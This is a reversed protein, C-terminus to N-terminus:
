AKEFFWWRPKRRVVRYNDALYKRIHVAAEKPDDTFLLYSTDEPSITGQAIMFALFERMPKYYELGMVVIPFDNIKRTQVLTLTEFFEDMTGFGGPMIVFAYSYKVLLVKRVFFYSIRVFKDLYPNETQEHPLVINCGVSYGGAEKAGRNAAEMVGPGGGTMVTLGLKAILSGVERAQEYYPHGAKFRASGFVTVSPGSFHLARFGKIFEWFVKFAFSLEFGRNKPGELWNQEHRSRRLLPKVPLNRKSMVNYNICGATRDPAARLDTKGNTKLFM